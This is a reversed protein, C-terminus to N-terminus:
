LWGELVTETVPQMADMVSNAVTNVGSQILSPKLADKLGDSTSKVAELPALITLTLNYRWIMNNNLDQAYQAGGSPVAVLYSEGLAMNYFYLRLPKGSEDLGVSKSLMAQLIKLVGYGTKVGLNFSNFSFSLISSNNMSNMISYLSYKGKNVSLSSTITKTDLLIKFNRGFSGKINIEQPTFSPNTLVTVGTMSKKINTRNPETKSISDPAVPFTLYDITKDNSDTLELAVMYWEFDYPFMSAAAQGGVEKLLSLATNTISAM